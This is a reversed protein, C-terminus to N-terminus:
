KCTDYVYVTSSVGQDELGGRGLTALRGKDDYNFSVNRHEGPGLVRVLRDGEYEFRTVKDGTTEKTVRGDADHEYRTDGMQVLWGNQDYTFTDDAISAVRGQADYTLTLSDDGSVLSVIRGPRERTAWAPRGGGDVRDVV